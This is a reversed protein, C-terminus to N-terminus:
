ALSARVEVMAEMQPEPQGAFRLVLHTAGAKAYGGLWEAAAAAPGAFVAQRKRLVHAPASYYGELFADLRANAEAVDDGIALTLYMAADLKAPDRGAQSAITKIEQWQRAFTPADPANPFWGDFWKGVRELSAPLNGGIWIPPGGARHPTPAVSGAVEWRGDWDVAEGSWLARCLRLGELMRGVRKDFPVGCAAFEARINAVDRAIGVGLIVRGESIRDLTAFQHALLVPNRLAPLLVATGLMVHPVRAAVAALLTIPDHRPRATVSDGIWLSDYGLAEARTALDLLPGTEHRGEMIRERTPLLYGLSPAM